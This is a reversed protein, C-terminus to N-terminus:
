AGTVMWVVCRVVGVILVVPILCTLLLILAGVAAGAIRAWREAWSGRKGM